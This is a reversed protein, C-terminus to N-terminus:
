KEKGLLELIKFRARYIPKDSETIVKYQTPTFGVSICADEAEKEKVTAAGLCLPPFLCCWWNQGEGEGLSVRMSIYEGAPFCFSDYTRTPYDELGMEISVADEFGNEQLVTQATELLLPQNEELLLVAEEKSQCNELLPVTVELIADRVKLKIAQDEESDSNALVHLRVVKDYIEEEGHVPLLGIALLCVAAVISLTLIRKYFM